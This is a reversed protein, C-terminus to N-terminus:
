WLKWPIIPGEPVPKLGPPPEPDDQWRWRKRPAPIPQAVIYELKSMVAMSIGLYLMGQNDWSMDLYAYMFHMFFFLTCTLAIASMDGGPMRWTTRIGMMIGLGIMVMMSFFGGFGTKMWIWMISNHTIYEWWDFFSIDPMPFAIVFKQGFGVGTLPYQHITFASNLNEIIRYEDSSQDKASTTDPAIVSKVAQAPMGAAGDVNWFAIIYLVGFAAAPPVILYFIKRNEKFLVISMLALSMGLTLFATRRQTAVYTFLVPPIFSLMVARRIRSGKYLFTAALLVIYTNIHIAASHETIKEVSGVDWNLVTASFVVGAIGEIFLAVILIWYINNIHQRTELLSSALIFIAPMYLIPRVEWLGININAGGRVIGWVLGYVMFAAFTMIPWFMPTMHFKLKRRFAAQGLWSIYTLAIFLELPSFIYAGGVFLISEGSSFNRNFPYTRLLNADAMMGFFFMVYLGYRPNYFTAFVSVFFIIWAVNSNSAGKRFMSFAMYASIALLTLFWGWWSFQARNLRQTVSHEILHTKLTEALM